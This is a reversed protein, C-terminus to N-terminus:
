RLALVAAAYMALGGCVTAVAYAAAAAFRKQRVMETLQWALSSFTSLAACLGTGLFLQALHSHPLAPAIEAVAGLAFSALMNAGFTGFPFDFKNADLRSSILFRLLAGASGGLAVALISLALTM